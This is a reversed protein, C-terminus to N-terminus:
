YKVKKKIEEDNLNASTSEVNTKEKLLKKVRHYQKPSDKLYHLLDELEIKPQGRRLSRNQSKNLLDKIYEIMYCEILQITDLRPEREDGFGYCLQSIEKLFLYKSERQPQPAVITSNGSTISTVTAFKENM